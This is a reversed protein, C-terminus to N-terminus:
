RLFTPHLNGDGMHGFTGVRLKYKESTKQIFEVMEVLRSRPVTVDELITTPALRALAVFASRRASALRLGEQADRATEM